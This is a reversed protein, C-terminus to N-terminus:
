TMQRPKSIRLVIDGLMIRKRWFRVPHRSTTIMKESIEVLSKAAAALAM